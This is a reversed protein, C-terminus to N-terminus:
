QVPQSNLKLNRPVYEWHWPEYYYPYFGFKHANKVLWKYAPTQVQIARNFDKSTVPEGGVYLDLANGTFHPSNVALAARGANPEARRLQEQHERSRYASIIKLFKEEPALDGTATLKLKLDKAAAQIMKKYAAYTEREIKLRSADRTPDYFDAIPADFLKEGSPSQSSNLRRAQWSATMKSFTNGDCVGTPAIGTKQQWLAVARAFETSDADAETEITHQILPVYLYWNSRLRLNEATANPTIVPSSLATKSISRPREIEPALTPVNASTEASQGFASFKSLGFSLVVALFFVGGAIPFLNRKEQNM